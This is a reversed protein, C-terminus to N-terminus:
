LSNKVTPPNIHINLNRTIIQKIAATNYKIDGNSIIGSATNPSRPNKSSKKIM